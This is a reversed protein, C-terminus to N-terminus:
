ESAAKTRGFWENDALVQLPTRHVIDDKFRQEASVVIVGPYSENLLKLHEVDPIVDGLDNWTHTSGPPLDDVLSRSWEPALEGVAGHLRVSLQLGSVPVDSDNAVAIDTVLPM